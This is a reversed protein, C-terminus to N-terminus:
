AGVGAGGSDDGNCLHTVTSSALADDNVGDGVDNHVTMMMREVVTTIACQWLWQAPSCTVPSSASANNDVRNGNDLTRAAAAAAM